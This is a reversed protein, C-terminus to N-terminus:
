LLSTGSTAVFVRVVPNVNKITNIIITNDHIWAGKQLPLINTKGFSYKEAKITSLYPTINSDESFYIFKEKETQNM